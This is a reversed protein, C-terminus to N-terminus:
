LNGRVTELIRQNCPKHGMKSELMDVMGTITERSINLDRNM